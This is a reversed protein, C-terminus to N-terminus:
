KKHLEKWYAYTRRLNDVNKGQKECYIFYEELSTYLKTTSRYKPYGAWYDEFVTLGLEAFPGKGNELVYIDNTKYSGINETNGSGPKEGSIKYKEQVFVEVDQYPIELQEIDDIHYMQGETSKENRTYIFGIIYHKKYQSYPFLINKTGNRM